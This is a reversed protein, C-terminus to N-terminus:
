KGLFEDIARAARYGEAIASIADGKNNLIVDGGAFIGKMGTAGSKDVVIKDWKIEIGTKESETIFSLDAIQGIASILTDVEVTYTEGTILVPRPRKGAGQDEMRAKGWVLKIRKSTGKEIQIPIAQTIIDVKELKADHIEEADAPMDEERRRYYITTVAELRRATRAADIAVNGGGIVAVKEGLDVKKGKTIDDLFEVGSLVGPIDEGTLRLSSADPLGSSIFLADAQKRIDALEMDRGVAKNYKIEVGLATIQSIEEDLQDYPMRYSPVGYRIMGGPKDNAEFITVKHGMRALYWAASLGGPGAGIISVNKGSDSFEKKLIDTIESPKVADIIYRKLWRIALPDGKVGIACADECNRTCIRGCTAPMPNTNYLLKVAHELDDERIARIYDPIDMHAPCSAVCLGCEVCRQAEKRAAEASYGKVMEIFSKLGTEPEIMEMKVQDPDLLSYGASRKYGAETKNWPMIEAGPIFRFKEPDEEIWIYDNAMSLSDTTCIDVCLACWCCRGYDILPRLGSDNLSSTIGAVEVMDIAGNQCITECSGCGICKDMNNQHFGRYREAGPRETLPKMTTYPKESARKWVYFPALIDKLKM